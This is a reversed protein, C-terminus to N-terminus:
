KEVLKLWEKIVQQLAKKKSKVDELDAFVVTKRGDKFNGELLGSSDNVKAGSPFVLMIRGKHLNLVAIDRKYEKPDFPKMEGSYYFSPSNWKIQESIEKETSLIIQRITEVAKGLEPDLKEIHATVDEEDSPKNAKSPSKKGVKATTIEMNQQIQYKVMRTILDLPLPQDLPFQVTGKGGKYRSLEEKFEEVGKPAPYFGIHNKYGAFHVLNGNLTFTPIGYGIKEDAEPAAKRITLRVKQLLKQTEEPFAAIYDDIETSIKTM